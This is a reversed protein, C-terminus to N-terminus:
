DLVFWVTVTISRSYTFFCFKFDKRYTNIRELQQKHNQPHKKWISSSSKYLHENTPEMAMTKEIRMFVQHLCENSASFIFKLTRTYKHYTYLIYIKHVKRCLPIFEFASDFGWITRSSWKSQTQVSVISINGFTGFM